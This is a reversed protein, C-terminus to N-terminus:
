TTQKIQKEFKTEKPPTHTKNIWNYVSQKRFNFGAETRKQIYTLEFKKRNISNAEIMCYNYCDTCGHVEAKEPNKIIPYSKLQEFMDANLSIGVIEKETKIEGCYDCRYANVKSM